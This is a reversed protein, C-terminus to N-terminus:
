KALFAKASGVKWRRQFRNKGSLFHLAKVTHRDRGQESIKYLAAMTISRFGFSATHICTCHFCSKLITSQLIFNSLHVSFDM